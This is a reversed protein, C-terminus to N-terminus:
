RHRYQEPSVGTWTKFARSFASPTSFGLRESIETITYKEGMLHFIATDLRLNDKIKQFTNGEARLRRRLTQETMAMDSAVTKADQPEDPHKGSLVVYVRNTLSDNGILKNLLDLPARDNFARLDGATKLVPLRLFDADMAIFNPGVIGFEHSTPFLFVYEDKNRVPDYSFGSGTLRMAQGALWSSFRYGICLFTEVMFHVFDQDPRALEVEFRVEKGLPRVALSVDPTVVSYFRCIKELAEGITPSNAAYECAINLTQQRLPHPLFGFSEDHTVAVIRRYLNVYSEIAVRARPQALVVPPINVEALLQDVLVSQGRICHLITEPYHNSVTLTKMAISTHPRPKRAPAVPESQVM